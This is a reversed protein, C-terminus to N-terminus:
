LQADGREALAEVRRIMTRRPLSEIKELEELTIYNEIFALNLYYKAEKYTHTMLNFTSHRSHRTLYM